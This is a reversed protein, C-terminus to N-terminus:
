RVGEPLEGVLSALFAIIAQKDAAPVDRGLQFQIMIDVAEDITPVSGDHFYPPTKVALRLSPVKFVRKDWENRTVNYRGLDEALTGEQMVIDKLVGFKQFMNGGVNQGQHCAICGYSQFLQYGRKQQESIANQDGRLFKDFPANPTILTKEFEAIAEVIGDATIDSGYIANFAATYEGDGALKVVAEDWSAMGMEIPNTVPGRAQEVLDAARGDWFQTFNFGSNLVTPSNREGKQGKVGTSVPALDTGYGTKLDHCSACSLTNDSSLRRDFFLLKGLEAKAVDVEVKLPLPTIPEASSAYGSALSIM